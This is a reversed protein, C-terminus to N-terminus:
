HSRSLAVACTTGAVQCGTKEGDRAESNDDRGPLRGTRELEL